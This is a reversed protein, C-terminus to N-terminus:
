TTVHFKPIKRQNKVSLFIQKKKWMEYKTRKLFTEMWCLSTKLPWALVCGYGPPRQPLKNDEKELPGGVFVDMVIM